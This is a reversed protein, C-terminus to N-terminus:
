ACEECAGEIMYPKTKGCSKCVYRDDIVERTIMFQTNNSNFGLAEVVDEISKHSLEEPIIKIHTYGTEFDLITIKNYKKM